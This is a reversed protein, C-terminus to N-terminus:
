WKHSQNLCIWLAVPTIMDPDNSYGKYWPYFQCWWGIVFVVSHFGHECKNRHVMTKNWMIGQCLISCTKRVSIWGLFCTETSSVHDILCWSGPFISAYLSATKGIYPDGNYLYSLITVTKDDYHFDSYGWVVTSICPGIRALLVSVLAIHKFIGRTGFAITLIRCLSKKTFIGPSNHRDRQQQHEPEKRQWSMLLWPVSYKPYANFKSSLPKNETRRWDMM